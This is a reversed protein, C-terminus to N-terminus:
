CCQAARCQEAAWRDAEGERNGAPLARVGRQPRQRAGGAPQPWAGCRQGAGCPVGAAPGGEGERKGRQRAVSRGNEFWARSAMREETVWEEGTGRELAVGRGVAGRVRVVRRRGGSAGGESPNRGLVAVM